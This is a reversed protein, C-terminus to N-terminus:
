ASKEAPVPKGGQAKKEAEMVKVHDNIAEEILEFLDPDLDEVAERTVKVQEGSDDTLSWKDVYILVKAFSQERWDIGIEVNRQTREADEGARERGDRAETTMGRMGAHVLRKSEGITLHKKVNIWFKEGEFELDVRRTGSKVFWKSM